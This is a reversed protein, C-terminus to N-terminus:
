KGNPTHRTKKYIVQPTCRSIPKNQKGQMGMRTASLRISDGMEKKFRKFIEERVQEQTYGIVDAFNFNAMRTETNWTMVVESLKM